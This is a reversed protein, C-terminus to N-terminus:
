RGVCRIDARRDFLISIFNNDISALPTDIVRIEKQRPLHEDCTVPPNTPGPVRPRFDVDDHALAIGIVGVNVLLLTYDKDGSIGWAHSDDPGHPNESIVISWLSM